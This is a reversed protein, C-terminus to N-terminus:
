YGSTQCGFLMSCLGRCLSARRIGFAQLAGSALVHIPFREVPAAIQCILQLRDILSDDQNPLAVMPKSIVRKVALASSSTSMHANKAGSAAAKM